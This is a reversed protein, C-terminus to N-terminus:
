RKVEVKLTKMRKGNETINIFYMGPKLGTADLQQEKAPAEKVMIIGGKSDLLEVERATAESPFALKIYSATPNPYVDVKFGEKTWIGTIILQRVVIKGEEVSAEARQHGELGTGITIKVFSAQDMPYGPYQINLLYTGSQLNDFSFEGDENTFEYAVLVYTEQGRGSDEVRRVSAGASGVRKQAKSRGGENVDEVVYGDILGSGAPVSTPLLQSEIDLNSVEGEIQLTAAEEWYLTNEYYTPLAREYTSTDAFGLVQYSDLIVKEVLYTGDPNVNVLHLSDYGGEATVRLLRIIGEEAGAGSVLLRGSVKTVALVSQPETTLTLDPFLASKVELVFAGMTTKDVSPFSLTNTTAGAVPTGNQTWQYTNQSGGVLYTLDYPTGVDVLVSDPVGIPKQNQYAFTAVTLNPELAGFDLKNDAVNLTTLTPIVSLDPISSVRNGSINITQLENLTTLNDPVYGKLNNNPLNIAVIKNNVVQIGFWTSVDGTGLWGTDNTWKDGGTAEYFEELTLRDGPSIGTSLLFKLWVVNEIGASTVTSVVQSPDVDASGNVGIAVIMEGTSTLDHVGYSNDISFGWVFDGSSSLKICFTSNGPFFREYVAPGPDMDINGSFKGTAILDGSSLTTVSYVSSEGDSVFSKAWQLAGNLDMKMLLSNYGSTSSLTATGSSGYVTGNGSYSGLMYLANNEIILRGEDDSKFVGANFNWVDAGVSTFKRMFHNYNSSTDSASSYILYVNNSADVTVASGDEENATAGSAKWKYNGNADYKAVFVDGNGLPNLTVVGAGADVDLVADLSGSFEGTLIVDGVADSEIDNVDSWLSEGSGGIARAWLFNGAASYKAFFGYSHTPPTTLNTVGAGPDFDVTGNFDGGIIVNNDKDVEMVYMYLNSNAGGPAIQKAWVLAGQADLKTLFFDGDGSAATFNTVGAGPDVDITGTFQGLMYTNNAGDVEIYTALGNMDASSQNTIQKVSSLVADGEYQPNLPEIYEHLQDGSVNFFVQKKGSPWIIEVSDAATASALGFHNYLTNQNAFGNTTMVQHHRGLGQAYVAIRAGIAMKNSQRGVLKIKLWHNGSNLNKYLGNNYGSFSTTFVDPYGDNNYDSISFGSSVDTSKFTQGSVRTFTLNGNNLYVVPGKPEFFGQNVILDVFGDNNFDAFASGRGTRVSEGLIELATHQDFGANGDNIFFQFDQGGQITAMLDLDGDNDIDAWSGGRPPGSLGSGVAYDYLQGNEQSFLKFANPDQYTSPMFYELANDGDVDVWTGNWQTGYNGLSVISFIDNGNNKALKTKLTSTGELTLDLDGDFDYDVWSGSLAPVNLPIKTFTGNKNNRYIAASGDTSTPSFGGDPMFIDAYGDNNYDGWVASRGDEFDTANNVRSFTGNGQNHYLYGPISDNVGITIIDDYGDNDYDGWAGAYLNANKGDNTLDGGDAWQFMGEAKVSVIFNASTITLGSVVSNTVRLQWTGIDTTAASKSLTNTTQGASAVNNRYWQYLNNSGAVTFTKSIPAGVAYVATDALGVTAQPIYATLRSINPELDEFTLNNNEVTFDSLGPIASLNPLDSFKNNTLRLTVLNTLSAFGAPLAGTLQNYSLDVNALNTASGLASPVPGTLQNAGLHLSNLQSLSGLSAPISGTLQNGGLELAYLATLGGLETPISGSLQNYQLYLFNLSTMSGLQTPISGTLQNQSLNLTVLGTMTGLSTPITGSLKNFYLELVDLNTLLSIENPINGSLNNASLNLNILNTANGIEKPISGSFLNNLLNLTTLTTISFLEAPIAGTIDNNDLTLNTLATLNGISAPLTGTLNNGSLNIQTVRGGSFTIGSWTNIPTATKWNGQTSWTVGGTANYLQVLALSDTTRSFTVTSTTASNTLPSTTRYNKYGTADTYSFVSYYYNKNSALPIDTFNTLPGAYAVTTNGITQGASYTQGDKPVATTASGVQRLVIYGNAGAAATFTGGISQSSTTLNLTTPQATPIAPLIGYYSIYLQQFDNELGSFDTTPDFDVKGSYDGYAVFLNDGNSELLGVEYDDPSSGGYGFGQNFTGTGSFYSLFVDYNGNNPIITTGVGPDLDIPANQYDGAVFVRDSTLAIVSNGEDYGAGGWARAWLLNGNTDFKSLYADESNSTSILQTVGAGPNFDVTGKFAGTLYIDGGPGAAMDFIRETNSGGFTKTWLMNGNLDYKSVWGDDDGTPTLNLQAASPDFDVTESYEGSLFLNSGQLVMNRLAPGPLHKVWGFTNFNSLKLIFPDSGSGSAMLDASGGSPDFDMIAQFSGTIYLDTGNVSLEGPFDDLPGGLTFAEEFAGSTGDFRAIFIDSGGLSGYPQPSGDPDFTVDTRFTGTVIIKGSGNVDIDVGSADDTGAIRQVFALAGGPTYKAFFIDQDGDATLTTEGTSPDFDCIGKFYGTVYVFGAADMKVDQAYYVPFEDPGEQVNVPQISKLWAYDLEQASSTFISVSFTLFASATLRLLRNM